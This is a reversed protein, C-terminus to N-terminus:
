AAARDLGGHAGSGCGPHPMGSGHPTTPAVPDDADNGALDSRRRAEAPSLRLPRPLATLVAFVEALSHRGIIGEDLGHSVREVAAFAREHAPHSELVSAVLVSTDLFVRM